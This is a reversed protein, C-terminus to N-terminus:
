EEAEEESLSEDGLIRINPMGQNSSMAIMAYNDAHRFHDDGNKVWVYRKSGTENDEELRKAMNKCHKAYEDMLADHRPIIIRQKAIMEHSADLSETRNEEVTMQEENWRASGKQHENYFNLFVKGQHRSALERAKRMEPMGDIICIQCKEVYKDLQEFDKEIAFWTLIKKLPGLRKFVIHLDRGQDVGMFVPESSKFPDRPFFKVACAKVMEITLQEKASAYPMGLKFNYFVQLRGSAMADQYRNWIDIGDVTSSFLQSYHYGHKEVRDPYKAVWAGDNKDLMRHCKKCWPVCMNATRLFCNPFEDELCTWEGCARCKLLWFRQDSKQFEKNIGYDPITPNSLRLIWKFSSASLREYAAECADPAARDMEDLVVMDAPASLVATISKLGRFYMFSRGVRKVGVNDTDEMSDQIVKNKQVLPKIRTRSFDYVAHDTPFYYIVGLPFKHICGHISRLFAMSTNGMQTAKEHVQDPHM